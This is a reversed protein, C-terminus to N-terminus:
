GQFKFRSFLGVNVGFISNSIDFFSLTIIKLYNSVQILM